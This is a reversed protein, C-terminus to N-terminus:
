RGGAPRHVLISGRRHFSVTFSEVEFSVTEDREGNLTALLAEADVYEEIGDFAEEDAGSAEVVADFFAEEISVPTQWGDDAPMLYVDDLTGEQSSAATSSAVTYERKLPKALTIPGDTGAAATEPDANGENGATPEASPTEESPQDAASPDPEAAVAGGDSVAGPAGASGDSDVTPREEAPVTEPGGLAAPLVLEDEYESAAAVLRQEAAAGLLETYREALEAVADRKDGEVREIAGDDNVVIGETSRAIKVASEGLLSRQTEILRGALHAYSM